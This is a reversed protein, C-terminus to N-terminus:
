NGTAVADAVKVFMGDALMPSGSTVVREGAAVGKALATGEGLFSTVEVAQRHLKGDQGVVYVCPKGTEDVRVAEPPVIVALIPNEQRLLVEAVMGIRLAGEPNAVAVKVTYTRTLPNAVVGVERVAGEFTRGVAGVVIRAAQGKKVGAVQTEPVPATALVTRTQVLLIAPSGPIATAGPEANRRAVIGPEPARLVTDDLNKQAMSLAMRAQQVGTEVEVWKVEPVTRNRHMPELRRYADEAQDAKAKTIGLADKYSRASLRALAQGSRVAEGEQVLVEEITGPVAFSLATSREAEITGSMRLDRASDTQRAVAVTVIQPPAAQPEPQRCGSGGLCLLGAAIGLWATRRRERSRGSENGIGRRTDM